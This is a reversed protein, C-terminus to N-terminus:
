KSTHIIQRPAIYPVQTIMQITFSNFQPHVNHNEEKKVLNCRYDVKIGQKTEFEKNISYSGYAKIASIAEEQTEHRSKLEFVRNSIKPKRNKPNKSSM